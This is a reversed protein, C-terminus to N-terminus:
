QGVAASAEDETPDLLLHWRSVGFHGALGEKEDVAARFIPAGTPAM